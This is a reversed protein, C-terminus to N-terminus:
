KKIKDLSMKIESNMLMKISNRGHHTNRLITEQLQGDASMVLECAFM